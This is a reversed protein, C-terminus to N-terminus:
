KASCCTVTPTVSSFIFWLINYVYDKIKHFM